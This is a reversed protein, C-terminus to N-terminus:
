VLSMRYTFSNRPWLRISLVSNYIWISFAYKSGPCLSSNMQLTAFVGSSILFSMSVPKSYTM